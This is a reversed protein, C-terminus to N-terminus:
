VPMNYEGQSEFRTSPSRKGATTSLLYPSDSILNAFLTNSAYNLQTCEQTNYLAIAGKHLFSLQIYMGGM